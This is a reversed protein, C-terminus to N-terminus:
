ISRRTLRRGPGVLSRNGRKRTTEGQVTVDSYSVFSYDVVQITGLFTITGTDVGVPGALTYRVKGAAPTDPEILAIQYRGNASKFAINERKFNALQVAMRIVAGAIGGAVAVQIRGTLPDTSVDTVPLPALPGVPNARAIMGWLLLLKARWNNFASQWSAVMRPAVGTPNEGILVDPSGFLFAEGHSRQATSFRVHISSKPQDPTPDITGGAVWHPALAWLAPPLLQTNFPSVLNSLRASVVDAGPPLMAIRLKLLDIASNTANFADTTNIVHAETGGYVDLKFTILLRYGTRPM